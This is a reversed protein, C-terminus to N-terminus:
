SVGDRWRVQPRHGVVVLNADIERAVETILLIQDTVIVAVM